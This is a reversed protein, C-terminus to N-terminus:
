TTLKGYKDLLNAISNEFPFHVIVHKRKKIIDGYKIHSDVSGHLFCPVGNQREDILIFCDFEEGYWSAESMTISRGGIWRWNHKTVYNYFQKAYKKDYLFSYKCNEFDFRM